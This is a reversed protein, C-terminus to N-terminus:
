FAVRRAADFLLTGSESIDFWEAPDAKGAAMRQYARSWVIFTHRAERTATEKIDSIAQLELHSAHYAEIDPSLYQYKENLVSLRNTTISHIQLLEEDSLKKKNKIVKMVAIVAQKRMEDIYVPDRTDRYHVAAILTQYQRNRVTRLIKEMELAFGFKSDIAEAYFDVLKKREKDLENLVLGAHASFENIAPSLMRLTELYNEGQRVNAILEKSAQENHAESEIFPDDLVYEQLAELVDALHNAKENVTINQESITVIQISYVTLATLMDDVQNQLSIVRETPAGEDGVYNDIRRLYIEQSKTLNRELGGILSITQTAFPAINESQQKTFKTCGSIVLLSIIVISLLKMKSYRVSQIPIFRNYM